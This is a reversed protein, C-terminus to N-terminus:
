PLKVLGPHTVRLVATADEATSGKPLSAAIKVRQEDVWKQVLSWLLVGGAILWGVIQQVLDDLAPGLIDLTVVHGRILPGALLLLVTRIVAGLARKQSDTVVLQAM